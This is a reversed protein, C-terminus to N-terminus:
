IRDGPSQDLIYILIYIHVHIAEGLFELLGYPGGLGLGRTIAMLL